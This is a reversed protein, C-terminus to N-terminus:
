TLASRDAARGTFLYPMAPRERRWYARLIALLRASLM